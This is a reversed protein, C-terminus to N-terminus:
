AHPLGPWHKAVIGSPSFIFLCSYSIIESEWQM